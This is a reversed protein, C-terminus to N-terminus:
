LSGGFGFLAVAGTMMGAALIRRFIVNWSHREELMHYGMLGIAAGLVVNLIGRTSQLIVTYMVKIEGVAAFFLFIGISWAITYPLALKIPRLTFSCIFPYLVLSAAGAMVYSVSLPLLGGMLPGFGRFPVVTQQIFIDSVALLFSAGLGLFLVRLPMAGGSYNLVIAAALALLVALVQIVTYHESFFVSTIIVVFLLKLGLLPSIRSAVAMSLATMLCFQALMFAITTGAAPILYQQMPPFNDKPYVVLIILAIIGMLLHATLLLQVPTGGKKESYFRSGLYAFSQFLAAGFGLIIGLIM